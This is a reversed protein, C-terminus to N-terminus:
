KEVQKLWVKIVQQLHKGKQKVEEMNRFYAMRRGDAYDGELLGSEDKITDGTPFILMAIGKRIHIVAIDRKYEKANFSKMEGRYFFAPSNWKIHEGVNKDTRLVLQRVAEVLSAFGPELKEIFHTVGDPDNIEKTM